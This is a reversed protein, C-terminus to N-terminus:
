FQVCVCVCVERRPGTGVDYLTSYYLSENIQSSRIPAWRGLPIKPTILAAM